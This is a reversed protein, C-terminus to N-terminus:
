SAAGQLVSTAAQTARVADGSRVADALEQLALQLAASRDPSQTTRAAVQRISEVAQEGCAAHISGARFMQLCMGADFAQTDVLARVAVLTRQLALSDAPARLVSIVPGAGEVQQLLQAMGERAGIETRGVELMADAALAGLRVARAIPSLSEAGSRVVRWRNETLAVLEDSTLSLRQAEQGVSSLVIEDRPAEGTGLVIVAVAAATALAAWPAIRRLTGGNSRARTPSLPTTSLPTLADSASPESRLESVDILVDRWDPDDALQALVREREEPSLRGDILAAVREADLPRESM